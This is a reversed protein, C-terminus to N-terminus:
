RQDTFQNIVWITESLRYLMEQRVEISEKNWTPWSSLLTNTRNIATNSGQNTLEPLASTLYFKSQKYAGIKQVYSENHISKNLTNELLTLNGLRNIYSEFEEDTMGYQAKDDCTQPM